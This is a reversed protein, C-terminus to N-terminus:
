IYLLIYRHRWKWDDYNIMGTWKIKYLSTSILAAFMPTRLFKELPPPLGLIRLAFRQAHSPACRRAAFARLASGIRPPPTQPPPRTSGGGWSFKILQCKLHHSKLRSQTDFVSKIQIDPNSSIILRLTQFLWQCMRRKWECNGLLPNYTPRTRITSDGAARCSRWHKPSTKPM